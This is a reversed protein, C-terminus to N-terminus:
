RGSWNCSPCEMVYRTLGSGRLRRIELISGCRPCYEPDDGQEAGQQCRVCLTTQPFLELREAPIPAHCRECAKAQGWDENALDDRAAEVALGTRGCRECAWTTATSKLLEAVTEADPEKARKLLGAARLRALVDIASLTARAGCALCVLDHYTNM